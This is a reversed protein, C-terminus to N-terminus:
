VNRGVQLDASTASAGSAHLLRTGAHVRVSAQDSGAPQVSTAVLLVTAEQKSAIRGAFSADGGPLTTTRTAPACAALLVVLAAIAGARARPPHLKKTHTSMCRAQM